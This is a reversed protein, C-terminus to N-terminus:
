QRDDRRGARSPRRGRVGKAYIARAFMSCRSPRSVSISDYAADDCLVLGQTQSM